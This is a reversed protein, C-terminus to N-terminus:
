ATGFQFKHVFKMSFVPTINKQWIKSISQLKHSLKKTKKNQIKM